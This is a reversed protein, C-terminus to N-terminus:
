PRAQPQETHPPPAQPPPQPPAEPTPPPPPLPAPPAAGAGSASRHASSPPPSGPEAAPAPAEPAAAPQEESLLGAAAALPGIGHSGGLGVAVVGSTAVLSSAVLLAFRKGTLSAAAAIAKQLLPTSLLKM